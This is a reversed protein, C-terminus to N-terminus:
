DLLVPKPGRCWQNSPRHTPRICHTASREKAAATRDRRCARRGLLWDSRAYVSYRQITTDKRARAGGSVRLVLRQPVLSARAAARRVNSIEGRRHYSSRCPGGSSFLTAAPRGTVSRTFAAAHAAGSHTRRTPRTLTMLRTQTRTTDHPTTHLDAVWRQSHQVELQALLVPMLTWALPVVLRRVAVVPPVTSVRRRVRLVRRGVARRGRVAADRRSGGVAVVLRRRVVTTAPVAVLWWRRVTRRRAVTAVRARVARRGTVAARLLRWGGTGTRVAVGAVTIAVALPRAGPLRVSPAPVASPVRGVRRRVRRVRATAAPSPRPVARRRVRARPPRRCSRGRAIARRRSGTHRPPRSTSHGRVQIAQVAQHRDSCHAGTATSHGHGTGVAWGLRWTILASILEQHGCRARGQQLRHSSRRRWGAWRRAAARLHASSARRSSSAGKCCRWRGVLLEAWAQRTSQLALEQLTCTSRFARCGSVDAARCASRRRGVSAPWPRTPQRRVAHGHLGDQHPRGNVRRWPPGRRRRVRRCPWPSAARRAAAAAVGKGRQLARPIRTRTAPASRHLSRQGSSHHPLAIAPPNPCAGAHRGQSSALFSSFLSSTSLTRLQQSAAARKNNRHGPRWVL